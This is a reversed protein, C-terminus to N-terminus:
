SSHGSTPPKHVVRLVTVTLTLVCRWHQVVNTTNVPIVVQYVGADSGSLDGLQASTGMGCFAQGATRVVSGCEELVGFSFNTKVELNSSVTVVGLCSTARM